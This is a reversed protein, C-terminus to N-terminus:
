LVPIGLEAGQERMACHLSEVLKGPTLGELYAAPDGEESLKFWALKVVTQVCEDLFEQTVPINAQEAQWQSWSTASIGLRVVERLLEADDLGHVMQILWSKYGAEIQEFVRQGFQGLRELVLPAEDEAEDLLRLTWNAVLGFAVMDTVALYDAAEEPGGIDMGFSQYLPAVAAHLVKYSM